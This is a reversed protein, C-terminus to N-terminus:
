TENKFGERSFFAGKKVLHYRHPKYINIPRKGKKKGPPGYKRWVEKLEEESLYYTKVEGAAGDTEPFVVHQMRLLKTLLSTM